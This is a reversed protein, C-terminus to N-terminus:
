STRASQVASDIGPHVQTMPAFRFDALLRALKGAMGRLGTYTRARAILGNVIRPQEPDIEWPHLYICAPQGEANIRRIGAATYVYPLMRLYGGGGVPAVSGSVHVTAIPVECIPGSDMWLIHAHRESGPMGYRDHLIPYISSDYTFGSEVLIDLAWLSQKTISYSPARYIVPSVGTADSIAKVAQLTDERFADPTLEYVLRHAYSHCGIEHGRSAIQRILAPHRHAVWGLIFFTGKVDYRDLLDLILSTQNSVRSPLLNWDQFRM